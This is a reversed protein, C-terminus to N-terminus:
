GRDNDVGDEVDYEEEEVDDVDEGYESGVPLAATVGNEVLVVSVAVAPDSQLVAYL